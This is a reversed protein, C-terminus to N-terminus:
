SECKKQEVGNVDQIKFNICLYILDLILINYRVLKIISRTTKIIHEHNLNLYFIQAFCEMSKITICFYLDTRILDYEM